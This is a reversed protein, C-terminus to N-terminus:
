TLSCSRRPLISVRVQGVSLNTGGADIETDLTLKRQGDSVDLTRKEDLSSSESNDPQVLCARKLAAWLTADDYLGFPDLNSRMTGNFLLPDQPIVLFPILLPYCLSSFSTLSSSLKSRLARLGIKSVDVGDILLRGSLLEIIRFMTLTVLTEILSLHSQWPLRRVQARGRERGALSALTSAAKFM